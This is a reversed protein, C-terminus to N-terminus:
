RKGLWYGDAAGASVAMEVGQEGLIGYKDLAIAMQGYKTATLYMDTRGSFTGGTGALHKGTYNQDAMCYSHAALWLELLAALDPDQSYGMQTVVNEWADVIKSASYIHQTLDRNHVDDYDGGESGNGLLKKVQLETVRPM